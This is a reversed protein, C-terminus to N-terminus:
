QVGLSRYTIADVAQVTGSDILPGTVFLLPGGQCDWISDSHPPKFVVRLCVIGNLVGEQRCVSM